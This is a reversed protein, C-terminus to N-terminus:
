VLRLQNIPKILVQHDDDFSDRYHPINSYKQFCLIFSKWLHVANASTTQWAYFNYFMLCIRQSWFKWILWLSLCLCWSLVFAQFSVEQKSIQDELTKMRTDDEKAKYSSYNYHQESLLRSSSTDGLTQAIESSTSSPESSQRSHNDSLGSDRSEGLLLLINWKKLM